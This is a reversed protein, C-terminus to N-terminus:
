PANSYQTVIPKIHTLKIGYTVAPPGLDRIATGYDDFKKLAEVGSRLALLKDERRHARSLALCAADFAREVEPDRSGWWEQDFPPVDDDELELLKDNPSMQHAGRISARRACDGCRACREMERPHASGERM